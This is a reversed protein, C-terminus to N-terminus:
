PRGTVSMRDGRGEMGACADWSSSSTARRAPRSSRSGRSCAIAEASTALQGSQARSAVSIAAIEAATAVSGTGGRRRSKRMLGSCARASRPDGKWRSIRRKASGDDPPASRGSAVPASEIPSTRTNTPLTTGLGDVSGLRRWGRLDVRAESFSRVVGQCRLDRRRGRTLRRLHVGHRRPTSSSASSPVRQPRALGRPPLGSHALSPRQRALAPHVRGRGSRPPRSGPGPRPRGAVRLRGPHPLGRPGRARRYRRGRRLRRLTQRPGPRYRPPRHTWRRQPQAGITASPSAGARVSSVARSSAM